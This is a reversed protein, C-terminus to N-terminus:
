TCCFEPYSLFFCCLSSIMDHASLSCVSLFFAPYHRSLEESQKKDDLGTWDSHQKSNFTCDCVPLPDVVAQSWMCHTLHHQIFSFLKQCFILVTHLVGMVELFCPSVILSLTPQCKMEPHLDSQCHHSTFLHAGTVENIM